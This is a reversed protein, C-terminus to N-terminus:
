EGPFPQADAPEEVTVEHNPDAITLELRFSARSLDELLTGVENEPLDAGVEVDIVLRRLLRDDKGTLVEVNASRVARRLQEASKGEFTPAAAPDFARVLSLLDNAAAVVDLRAAVRDTADGGVEDGESVEAEAFWDRIELEELGTDGALPGGTGRLEDVQEPGLEYTTEDVRVFAKEGTSVFTTTAREEGAIQTYELEAVPLEDEGSPFAFPGELEFGADRDEASVLIRLSITGSKIEGLNAATESLVDETSPSGCGAAALALAALLAASLRM